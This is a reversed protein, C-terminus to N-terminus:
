SQPFEKKKKKLMVTFYVVLITHYRNLRKLIMALVFISIGSYDRELSGDGTIKDMERLSVSGLEASTWSRSGRGESNELETTVNVNQDCKAWGGEGAEGLYSDLNSNILPRELNIPM